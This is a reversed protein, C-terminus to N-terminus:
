RYRHEKAQREKYIGELVNQRLLHYRLGSKFKLRRMKGVLIALSRKAVEIPCRHLAVVVLQRYSCNFIDVITLDVDAPCVYGVFTSLRHAKSTTLLYRIKLM